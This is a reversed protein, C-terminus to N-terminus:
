EIKDPKRYTFLFGNNSLRIVDPYLIHWDCINIDELVTYGAIGFRPSRNITVKNCLSYISTNYYINKVELFGLGFWRSYVHINNNFEILKEYDAHFIKISAIKVVSPRLGAMHQARPHALIAAHLAKCTCMLTFPRCTTAILYDIINHIISRHHELLALLM